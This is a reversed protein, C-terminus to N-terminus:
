RRRAAEDLVKREVPTLSHFGDRSIKDLIADVEASSPPGESRPGPARKSKGGGFAMWRPMSFGRWWFMPETAFGLVRIYVFGVILGGLHALHAIRGGMELALVASFIVYFVALWRAQIQIPIPFLVLPARPYLVAFAMVVALVAGSAGLVYVWGKGLNAVWWLVGGLFGGMLYLWTFRAPGLRDEVPRGLFYLGMMNFMLHWVDAHVWMYTLFQWISGAAVGAPSLVLPGMLGPAGLAGALVQVLHVAVNAAVIWSTVRRWHYGDWM